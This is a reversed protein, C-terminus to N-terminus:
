RAPTPNWKSGDPLKKFHYNVVFPQTLYEPDEVIQVLIIWISRDPLELTGFHESLRADGTDPMGNRWHYGPKLNTTVVKMSGAKEFNRRGGM